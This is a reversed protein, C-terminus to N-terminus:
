WIVNKGDTIAVMTILNQAENHVYIFGRNRGFVCVPNEFLDAITSKIKNTQGAMSFSNNVKSISRIQFNQGYFTCLIFTNWDVLPYGSILKKLRFVTDIYKLLDWRDRNRPVPM